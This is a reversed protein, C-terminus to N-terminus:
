GVKTHGSQPATMTTMSVKPRPCCIRAGGNGCPADHVAGSAWHARQFNMPSQRYPVAKGISALVETKVPSSELFCPMDASFIAHRTADGVKSWGSCRKLGPLSLEFGWLPIASLNSGRNV